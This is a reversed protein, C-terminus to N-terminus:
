YPQAYEFSVPPKRVLCRIGAIIFLVSPILSIGFSLLLMPGGAIIYLIGSTTPNNKLMILAVFGLILGIIHMAFAWWGLSALFGFFTTAGEVEHSPVTPDNIMDQEYARILAQFGVIIFGLFAGLILTFVVGILGLVLEGGRTM